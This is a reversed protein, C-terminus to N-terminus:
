QLHDRTSGTALGLPVWSSGISIGGKLDGRHGLGLFFGPSFGNVSFVGPYVNLRVRYDDRDAFFLSALLSNHRDYFFGITPVLDVGKVDDTLNFLNNAQGGFGFSVCDGNGRQYSLGLEGQTGMHYFASWRRFLPYKLAFNQGNNELAGTELNVAPQYSWEVMNLTQAFFRAVSDVSFLAVGLPNFVYFDAIPDTTYGVYDDNEVVENLFHYAGLTTLAYTTSHRYGHYRFWEEMLRYSMGGGILHLTYNPWFHGKKASISFPLMERELFDHWGQQEIAAIPNSLNRWVNDVGTGYDIELIRNDRNDFQTIGFGGNVILRIPHILTESGYPLRHYFYYPKEDSADELFLDDGLDITDSGDTTPAGIASTAILLAIFGALLV